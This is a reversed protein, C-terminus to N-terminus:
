NKRVPNDDLVGQELRPRLELSGLRSMEHSTALRVFQISAWPIFYEFSQDQVLIGLTNISLVNLYQMGKASHQQVLM